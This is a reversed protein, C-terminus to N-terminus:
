WENTEINECGHTIAQEMKKLDNKNISGALALLKENKTRISKRNKKVLNKLYDLVSLREAKELSRIYNLIQINIASSTM